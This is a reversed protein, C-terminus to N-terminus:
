GVRRAVLDRRGGPVPVDHHSSRQRLPITGFDFVQGFNGFNVGSVTQGSVLTVTHENGAAAGPYTQQWGALEAERIAYTGFYTSEILYEGIANTNAAPEGVDIRNNGNVDVYMTFGGVGVENTDRVGDKDLDSWKVGSVYAPPAPTTPPTPPAVYFFSGWRTGYRGSFTATGQPDRPLAYENYVWFTSEDAPDLAMGTYDGWRNRGGGVAIYTDQGVALPKAARTTGPADAAARLAYYAGAYM